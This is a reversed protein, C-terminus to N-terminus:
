QRPALEHQYTTHVEPRSNSANNNGWIYISPTYNIIEAPVISNLGTAAGYIRYLKISDAIVAGNIRLQKGCYVGTVENTGTDKTALTLHNTSPNFSTCTNITGETVLIADIRTVESDIHINGDAIIIYQPIDGINAYNSDNYSLPAGNGYIIVSGKAYIVHTVGGSLKSSATIAIDGSSYTYRINDKVTYSSANSLNLKLLSGNNRDETEAATAAYKQKVTQKSASEGSSGFQGTTGSMCNTNSFSLRSRDCFGVSTNGGPNAADVLLGPYAYGTAAGSSVGSVIGNAIIGYEVWSGFVRGTQGQERIPTYTHIGDLLYKRSEYAKVNGASYLSGGWIQFSPKKAIVRCYARSIYTKGNSPSTDTSGSPYISIGVCLKSGAKIDPVNFTSEGIGASETVGNLNNSQNFISTNEGIKTCGNYGLQNQYYACPDTNVGNQEWDAGESRDRNETFFSYLRITTEPTKTAYDEGVLNNHRKNVNIKTGSTTITDGSYIFEGGSDYSGTNTYNYPVNVTAYSSEGYTMNRTYNYWKDDGGNRYTVTCGAGCNATHHGSASNSGFTTYLSQRIASDGIAGVADSTIRTGETSITTNNSNGVVGTFTNGDQTLIQGYQAFNYNNNNTVFTNTNERNQITFTNSSEVWANRPPIFVIKGNNEPKNYDSENGETYRTGQAGPYYYHTFSIEDTPKAYLEQVEPTWTSGSGSNRKKVTTISRTTGGYSDGSGEPSGNVFDICATSLHRLGDYTFDLTECVAGLNKMKIADDHSFPTPRGGGAGYLDTEAYSTDSNGRYKYTLSSNYKSDFSNTITVPIDENFKGTMRVYHKFVLENELNNMSAGEVNISIRRLEGNIWETDATQTKYKAVSRGQPTADFGVFKGCITSSYNTGKYTFTLTQCITIEQGIKVKGSKSTSYIQKIVNPTSSNVSYPGFEGNYETNDLAGSTTVKFPVKGTNENNLESLIVKVEHSFDVDFIAGGASDESLKVPIRRTEATVTNNNTWNTNNSTGKYSITSQSQVNPLVLTATVKACVTSSHGTFTLTECVEKSDTEHGAYVTGTTADKQTSSVNGSVTKSDSPFNKEFNASVPNAGYNNNVAFSLKGTSKGKADDLTSSATIQHAFSITRTASEGSVTKVKIEPISNTQGNSAEKSSGNATVVSKGTFTPAIGNYEICANPTKKTSNGYTYFLKQCITTSGGANITNDKISGSWVELTGTGSAFTKSGSSNSVESGDQSASNGRYIKYSITASQGSVDNTARVEHKFYADKKTSGGYPTHVDKTVTVNSSGWNTHKEVASTGVGSNGNVTFTNGKVTGCVTSTRTTGSFSVTLRQCVTTNTNATIGSVTYSGTYVTSTHTPVSTSTALNVQDSKKSTWSGNNVKEEVTYAVGNAVGNLGGGLEIDHAFNLKVSPSSGPAVTKNITALNGSAATTNTATATSKNSTNGDETITSAGKLTNGIVRGCVTTKRSASKYTSSLEECIEKNTNGAVTVDFYTSRVTSDTSSQNGPITLTTTKNSEENSWSQGNYRRINYTIDKASTGATGSAELKHVFNFRTTPLSNDTVIKYVTNLSQTDSLKSKNSIATANNGANNNESISSRISFDDPNVDTAKEVTVCAKRTHDTNNNTNTYSLVDCIKQGNTVADYTLSATRSMLVNEKGGDVPTYKVDSVDQKSRPLSDTHSINYKANGADKMRHQFNIVKANDANNASTIQITGLNVETTTEDWSTAQMGGTNSGEWIAVRGYVPIDDPSASCFWNVNNFEETSDKNISRWINYVEQTGAFYKAYIVTKNTYRGITTSGTRSTSNGATTSIIPQLPRYIENPNDYGATHNEVTPPRIGKAEIEKHTSAEHLTGNITIDKPYLGSSQFGGADKGFPYLGSFPNSPTIMNTPEYLNDVSPRGVQAGVKEINTKGTSETYQNGYADTKLKFYTNPSYVQYGLFWFGGAEKCSEGSRWPKSSNGDNVPDIIIRRHTTDDIYTQVAIVTRASSNIQSIKCGINNSGDSNPGCYFSITGDLKNGNADKPWEYYLWSLGFCTDWHYSSGINDKGCQGGNSSGGDGVVYGDAFASNPIASFALFTFMIVLITKVFVNSVGKKVM